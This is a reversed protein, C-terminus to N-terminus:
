KKVQFNVLTQFAHPFHVAWAQENHDANEDLLTSIRETNYGFKRLKDALIQVYKGITKDGGANGSYIFLQPLYAAKKITRQLFEDLAEDEYLQLASSFLLGGGFLAAYTLVIFLSMVGGMSSGGIFTAERSQVTHYHNNIFPM